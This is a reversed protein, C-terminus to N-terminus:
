VPKLYTRKLQGVALTKSWGSIEQYIITTQTPQLWTKRSIEIAFTSDFSLSFASPISINWISTFCTFSSSLWIIWCTSTFYKNCSLTEDIKCTHIKKWILTSNQPSYGVLLCIGSPAFESQHHNPIEQFLAWTHPDDVANRSNRGPTECKPVLGKM